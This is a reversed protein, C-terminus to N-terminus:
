GEVCASCLDGAVWSCPAGTKEVCQSCDADTCGCIRCRRVPEDVGCRMARDIEAAILAGAKVLNRIPDSPKWWRPEWPWWAPLSDYMDEPDRGLLQEEAWTLYCDAAMILEGTAHETDDHRATWGEIDIQRRREAAILEAGTM